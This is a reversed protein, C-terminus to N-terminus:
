ADQSSLMELMPKPISSKARKGFNSWKTTAWANLPQCQLKKYKNPSEQVDYRFWVLMCVYIQSKQNPVHPCSINKKISLGLEVFHWM